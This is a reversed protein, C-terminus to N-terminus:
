LGTFQKTIQNNKIKISFVANNKLPWFVIESFPNTNNWLAPYEEAFAEWHEKDMHISIYENTYISLILPFSKDYGKKAKKVKNSIVEAIRKKYNEIEKLSDPIYMNNNSIHRDPVSKDSLYVSTLEIGFLENTKIDKVTVDPNERNDNEIIFNRVHSLLKYSKIFENIEYEERKKKDPWKEM